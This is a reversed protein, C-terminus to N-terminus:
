PIIKQSRCREGAPRGKELLEGNYAESIPYFFPPKLIMDCASVALTHFIWHERLQDLIRKEFIISKTGNRLQEYIEATVPGNLTCKPLTAPTTASGVFARAGISNDAPRFLGKSFEPVPPISDVIACDVYFLRLNAPVRGVNVFTYDIQPSPDNPGAPQGLKVESIVIYPRELALTVDASQKAAEAVKASAEAQKTTADAIQRNLSIQTQSTTRAQEATTVTLKLSTIAVLAVIANLCVALFSLLVAFRNTVLAQYAIRDRPEFLWRPKQSRFLSGFLRRLRRM